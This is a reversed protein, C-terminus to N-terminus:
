SSIEESTTAATHHHSALPGPGALLAAIADLVQPLPAPGTGILQVHDNIPAIWGAVPQRSIGAGSPGTASAATLVDPRFRPMDALSRGQAQARKISVIAEVHQDSYGARGEHRLVPPLLGLTQYYRVNRITVDPAARGDSVEIGERELHRNVRIVLQEIDFVTSM